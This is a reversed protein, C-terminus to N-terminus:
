KQIIIKRILNSKNNEIFMLYVGDSFNNLNINESYKRNIIINSKKYVVIGLSNIIKITVLDNNHSSLELTFSGNNPNPFLNVGFLNNLNNIGTCPDILVDIEDSYSGAGCDNEGRVKIKATGLFGTDWVVTGVTDVGSIVGANRPTIDWTYSTANETQTTTYTANGSNVCLFTQGVPTTPTLPLPDVNIFLEQSYDGNGCENVGRVSISLPGLYGTNLNLFVATDNGTITGATDPSVLWDYSDAHVAGTTQYNNHISNECINTPGTPKSAKSPTTNVTIYSPKILTSSSVANTAKLKVNYNGHTNYIVSPNQETSTNPEGGPFTWEWSTPNGTSEDTFNVTEGECVETKDASFKANVQLPTLDPLSVKNGQLVEKTTNDQIFAVLECNDSVWNPDLSFSLNIMQTQADKSFSLPTGYQDPVMLRNVYNLETMGQWIYPIDSETLSFQLVINTGSYNAVKTVTVTVNYNLGSHTGNIAITFSSPIAKRQNYLPLYDDYNSSGAHGGGIFELVGDFEATPFSTISYYSNRANSYVNAFPDGNHNEMVAVDCGNSILDDAGQAAGPCYQCWTGTGIELIVMEREVQQAMLMTFSFFSLMILLLKKM